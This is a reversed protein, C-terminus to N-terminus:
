LRSDLAAFLRGSCELPKVGQKSVCPGPFVGWERECKVGTHLLLLPPTEPEQGRHLSNPFGNHRCLPCVCAAFTDLSM